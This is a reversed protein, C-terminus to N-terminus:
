KQITAVHVYSHCFFCTLQNIPQDPLVCFICTSVPFKEDCLALSINHLVSVWAKYIFLGFFLYVGCLRSGTQIILGTGFSAGRHFGVRRAM